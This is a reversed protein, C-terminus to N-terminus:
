DISEFDFIDPTLYPHHQKQQQDETDAAIDRHGPQCSRRKLVANFSVIEEIQHVADRAARKGVTRQKGQTDPRVDVSGNDHLKEAHTNGREFPEGLLAFLSLFLNRLIRSIESDKQRNDLGDTDDDVKGAGATGYLRLEKEVLRPQRPKEHGHDIGRAREEDHPQTFSDGVVAHAVTM